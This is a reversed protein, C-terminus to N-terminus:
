QNEDQQLMVTDQCSVLGEDIRARCKGSAEEPLLIVIDEVLSM